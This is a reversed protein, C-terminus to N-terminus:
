KAARGTGLNSFRAFLPGDVRIDLSADQAGQADLMRSLEDPLDVIIVGKWPLSRWLINWLARAPEVTAGAEETVLWGKAVFVRLLCHTVPHVGQFRSGVLSKKAEDPLALMVVERLRIELLFLRDRKRWGVRQVLGVSDTVHPALEGAMLSEVVQSVLTYLEEIATYESSLPLARNESPAFSSPAQIASMRQTEPLRLSVHSAPMWRTWWSNFSPTAAASEELTQPAVEPQPRSTAEALAPQNILTNWNRAGHIAAIAELSSSQRLRFKHHESLYNVLRAAQAKLREHSMAKEM